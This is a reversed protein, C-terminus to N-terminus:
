NIGMVNKLWDPPEYEEQRISHLLDRREQAIRQVKLKEEMQAVWQKFEAIEATDPPPPPLLKVGPKPEAPPLLASSERIGDLPQFRTCYIGRLEPVGSWRRMKMIAERVMFYLATKSVVFEGLAAAISRRSTEDTPFYPIAGLTEVAELIENFAPKSM